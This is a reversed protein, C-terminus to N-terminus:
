ESKLSMCLDHLAFFRTIEEIVGCQWYVERGM